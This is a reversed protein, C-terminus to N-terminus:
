EDIGILLCEYVGRIQMKHIVSWATDTDPVDIYAKEHPLLLQDLVQLTPPDSSYILSQLNDPAETKQKKSEPELKM